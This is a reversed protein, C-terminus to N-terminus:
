DIYRMSIIIIFIFTTPLTPITTMAQFALYCKFFIIIKKLPTLDTPIDGVVVVVVM